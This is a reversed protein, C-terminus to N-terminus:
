PLGGSTTASSIREFRDRTGRNATRNVFQCQKSFMLHHAALMGDPGIEPDPEEYRDANTGLDRKAYRAELAKADAEDLEEPLEQFERTRGSGHGRGRARLYKGLGGRPRGRSRGRARFAHSPQPENASM